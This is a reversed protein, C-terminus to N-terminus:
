FKNLLYRIQLLKYRKRLSNVPNKFFYKQIVDFPFVSLNNLAKYYTENKKSLIKLDDSVTHIKKLTDELKVLIGASLKSKERVSFDIILKKLYNLYREVIAKSYPDCNNKYYNNFIDELIILYSELNRDGVNKTISESNDTRYLYTEQNIFKVNRAQSFTEFFWLEDEHLIGNKFRLNNRDLFSRKFLRNQAVPALGTEMTRILVEQNENKFLVSGEKPHQLQSIKTLNEGNVNVVIGTIIDTNEELGSVLNLIASETLLDDADLFFVYDGKANEIGRNRTASLGKNEQSFLEFRHDRKAYEELISLSQDKSGDNILLCEWNEYTQELVSNLTFRVFKEANYCPVIISILPNEALKM